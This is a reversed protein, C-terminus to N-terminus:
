AHEEQQRERDFEQCVRMSLSKGCRLEKSIKDMAMGKARLARISAVMADSAPPRGIRKGRARAAAMGAKTREVTM